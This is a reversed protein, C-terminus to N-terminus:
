VEITWEMVTVDKLGKLEYMQVTAASVTAIPGGVSSIITSVCWAPVIRM